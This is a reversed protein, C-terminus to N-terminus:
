VGAFERKAADKPRARFLRKSRKHCEGRLADARETVIAIAPRNSAAEPEPLAQLSYRLEDLDHLDGLKEALRALRKAAKQTGGKDAVLPLALALYKTWRRLRHWDEDEGSEVARQFRKRGRRYLRGYGYDILERRGCAVDLRRWRERDQAFLSVIEATVLAEEASEPQLAVLQERAHGLSQRDEEGTKRMLKDLTKVRVFQDRAGALLKAARAIDRSAADAQGGPLFPKLVQWLARLEKVSVRLRHVDVPALRTQEVLDPACTAHLAGARDIVRKSGRKPMAVTGQRGSRELGREPMM